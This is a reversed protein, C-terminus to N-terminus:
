AEENELVQRMEDFKAREEPSVEPYHLGLQELTAVLTEAVTMRMFPKDDAPIAYWPAWPRSTARLADEYAKQYEDWFSRERM